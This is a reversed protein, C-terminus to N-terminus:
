YWGDAGVALSLDVVLDEVQGGPEAVGARHDIRYEVRDEVLHEALRELLHQEAPVSVLRPPRGPLCEAGPSRPDGDGPNLTASSCRNRGTQRDISLNKSQSLNGNRAVM